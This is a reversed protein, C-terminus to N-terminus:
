SGVAVAARSANARIADVMEAWRARPLDHGMDPFMLLRATPIAKATATGGSPKVLRDALGHVVLVPVSLTGLAQTRPPATLVAATQRSTGDPDHSREYARVVAERVEVEDFHPGAIARWLEIGGGIPDRRVRRRLWLWKVLLRRSMQGSRRDGTNSMISTLSRVRHPHRIALAQAIMGGMSAGVVHASDIGLADLLGAADDALDDLTYPTEIARNLLLGTVLKRAPPPPAEVHTSLGADRNDYRIVSFGRQVLQEVFGEPWAIMQSGLGMILLLPEGEGRVEHEISIGNAQLQAM